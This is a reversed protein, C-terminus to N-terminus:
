RCVGVSPRQLGFGWLTGDRFWFVTTVRARRQSFAYYHGCQTRLMRRYTGTVSLEDDGLVVGQSTQWGTPSWLTYLAVARRRTFEAAVGVANFPGYTVYLTRRPCGRCVGARPGWAARVEAETAGLRMGALSTGPVLVGQQPLALLLAVGLALV